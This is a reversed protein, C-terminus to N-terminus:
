VQYNTVDKEWASIYVFSEPSGSVVDCFIMNVRHINTLPEPNSCSKLIYLHLHMMLNSDLSTHCLYVGSCVVINVMQPIFISSVPILEAEGFFILINCCRYSSLHHVLSLIVWSQFSTPLFSRCCLAHIVDVTSIFTCILCLLSNQIIRSSLCCSCFCSVWKSTFLLM